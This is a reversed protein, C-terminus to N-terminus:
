KREIFTIKEEFEFGIHEYFGEAKENLAIVYVEKNERKLEEALSLVTRKGLGTKRNAVECAVGSIIAANDTEASTLACSLVKGDETYGKIRAFGRRQRFMFDSLFSFYAEDTDSFSDPINESILTYSKRYYEETLAAVFGGRYEGRYAYAKKTVSESFGLRLAAESACSVSGYGIMDLFAKVDETAKDSSYILTISDEFKGIVGVADEESDECLWVCLFEREFGYANVQCLIKTGLVSGECLAKIENFDNSDALRIRLMIKRLYYQLTM